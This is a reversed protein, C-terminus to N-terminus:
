KRVYNIKKRFKNEVTDTWEDIALYIQQVDVKYTKAKILTSILKRNTWEIEKSEISEFSTQNCAELLVSTYFLISTTSNLQEILTQIYLLRLPEEKTDILSVLKYLSKSVEPLHLLLEEISNLIALSVDFDKQTSKKESYTLFLYSSDDRAAKELQDIELSGRYHNDYFIIKRSKIKASLLHSGSNTLYNRKLYPLYFCNCFLLVENTDLYTKLGNENANKRDFEFSIGTNELLKETSFKLVEYEYNQTNENFLIEQQYNTDTGFLLLEIPSIEVNKNLLYKAITVFLCNKDIIM